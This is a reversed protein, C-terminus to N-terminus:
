SFFFSFFVLFFFFPSSNRLASLDSTCCFVSEYVAPPLAPQGLYKPLCRARDTLTSSIYLGRDRVKIDTCGFRIEVPIYWYVHALVNLAAHNMLAGFQACDLTWWFYFCSDRKHLPLNKLLSFTYTVAEHLLMIFWVSTSNVSPLLALCNGVM